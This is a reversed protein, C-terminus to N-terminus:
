RVDSRAAPRRRDFAPSRQLVVRRRQHQDGDDADKQEDLQRHGDEEDDHDGLVREVQRDQRRVDPVRRREEEIEEYDDAIREVEEDVAAHTLLKSPREAIEEDEATAVAAAGAAVPPVPLRRGCRGIPVTTCRM